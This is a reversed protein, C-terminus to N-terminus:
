QDALRMQGAEEAAKAGFQYASSGVQRYMTRIINKSNEVQLALDYPDGGMQAFRIDVLLDSVAKADPVEPIRVECQSFKDLEAGVARLMKKPSMDKASWNVKEPDVASGKLIKRGRRLSRMGLEVTNRVGKINVPDESFPQNLIEFAAHGALWHSERVANSGVFIDRNRVIEEWVDSSMQPSDNFLLELFRIDANMFRQFASQVEVYSWSQSSVENTRDGMRLIDKTSALYVGLYRPTHSTTSLQGVVVPEWYGVSENMKVTPDTM